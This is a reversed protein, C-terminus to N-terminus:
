RYGLNDMDFGKKCLCVKNQGPLFPLTLYDLKYHTIGHISIFPHEAKLFKSRVITLTPFILNINVHLVYLQEGPNQNRNVKGEM